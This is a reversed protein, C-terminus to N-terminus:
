MTNSFEWRPTVEPCNAAQYLPLSNIPDPTISYDVFGFMKRKSYIEMSSLKCMINKVVAIDYRGIEM